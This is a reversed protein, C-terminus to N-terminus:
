DGLDVPFGDSPCLFRQYNLPTVNPTIMRVSGDCVAVALGQRIFAHGYISANPQCTAVTPMLQFTRDAAAVNDASISHTGAGFFPSGPENPRIGDFLTPVAPSGCEGFRTAFMATNSTGDMIRQLALQNEMKGELPAAMGVQAREGATSFVRINGAYNTRGTTNVKEEFPSLLTAIAM